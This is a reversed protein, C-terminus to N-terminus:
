MQWDLQWQNWWEFMDCVKKRGSAISKRSGMRPHHVECNRAQNNLQDALARWDNGCEFCDVIRERDAACVSDRKTSRCVGYIRNSEQQLVRPFENRLYNSLFPLNFACIPLIAARHSHCPLNSSQCPLIIARLITEIFSMSVSLWFLYISHKSLYVSHKFRYHSHSFDFPSTFHIAYINFDM